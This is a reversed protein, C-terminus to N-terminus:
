PKEQPGPRAPRTRRSWVGFRKLLENALLPLGAGAAVALLDRGALPALGLLRRLGPLWPMALQLALSGGVALKLPPNMPGLRADFLSRQSSRCSLAHLLQGTTLTTFAVTSAPAGSGHRRLAAAYAALTGATLLSGEVAMRSFDRRDLLPERPDAPPRRLVDPEPPEVALGLGPFIDTILNLWLLQMASLPQGLGGAISGFMVLIESLNSSLLFHIAKRTNEHIGRGQRIADVLSHLDGAELVVDAVNRAVESGGDGMAIGVDAAKLAPGDNIGDGTMAVVRGSRQLAQVIELKHSPSVRSFVQVRGALASLVEPPLAQMRTSDLIELSGDRGLGLARATAYATASQDGTIMSTEIGAGHLEGMLERMGDRPPDEMGVLGLWVLGADVEGPMADVEAAAVGLVRLARGAMRGNEAAVANRDAVELPRVRGAELVRDCRALLEEPNGKAALRVRAGAAHVSVMVSREASRYDMRLLPHRRRLVPVPIGAALALEMLARETPSGRLAPGDEGPELETENCLVCAELLARAADTPPRDRVDLGALTVPEGDVSLATVAMRNRTLTGTKDLCLEQIGGLTEVADIHRVLVRRRRLTQVGLALTTTAVTPLGEPLAAVALSISTRLLPVLGHGRLTGVAFMAVVLGSGAWVLQNGLSRLQTQAPTEPPRAEGVLRQIHGIETAAGTAVVVARGSGGTVLTGRYVMNTRDGIPTPERPLAALQKTVPMSEGTLASEDVSLRTAQILRGDAVVPAGPVLCIVDGPVVAEGPLRRTQGERLVDAAPEDFASLARLTRESQRETAYGIAANLLVVAVIVGADAAGGTLLSLAASGALMAVPLTSLQEVLTQWRSRPAPRPLANPGHRRVRELADHEDLGAEPSSKWSALVTDAHEEHWARRPSEDVAPTAPVARLGRRAQRRLWALRVLSPVQRALRASGVIRTAAFPPETVVPWPPPSSRVACAVRAVLADLGWATPDFHVLLTGTRASSVVQEIGAGGVREELVRGLGPARRLGAVRLRARGPVATHVARVLPEVRTGDVGVM